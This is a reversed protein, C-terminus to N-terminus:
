ISSSMKLFLRTAKSISYNGCKKSMTFVGHEKFLLAAAPISLGFEDSMMRVLRTQMYIIQADEGMSPFIVFNFAVSKLSYETIKRNKGVKAVFLVLSTLGDLVSM